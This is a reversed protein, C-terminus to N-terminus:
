RNQAIVDAFAQAMVRHGASTLHTEFPSVGRVEDLLLNHRGLFASYVDVLFVNADFSGVVQAVTANLNAILPATLPVLAEIQPLTYQNAVFVRANPLASHLEHIALWLNAGYTRIVGGAFTLVAAQDNPHAQMFHLISLLDNGGITVTIYDPIFGGLDAPIAAQPVQYSALDFSSAGPVAANAFLTHSVEDFVGNEYLLYAYGNTVPVAKYGSAISDGLALYRTADEAIIRHSQALSSTPTAAIAASALIAVIWARANTKM